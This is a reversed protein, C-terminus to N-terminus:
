EFALNRSEEPKYFSKTIAHRCRISLMSSETGSRSRGRDTVVPVSPVLTTVSIWGWLAFRRFSQVCTLCGSHGKGRKSNGEGSFVTKRANAEEQRGLLRCEMSGLCPTYSEPLTVTAGKQFSCTRFLLNRGQAKSDPINNGCRLLLLSMASITSM